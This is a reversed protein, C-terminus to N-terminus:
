ISLGTDRYGTLVTNSKYGSNGVEGAVSGHENVVSDRLRAGEGHLPHDPAQLAPVPEGKVVLGGELLSVQASVFLYIRQLACKERWFLQAFRM